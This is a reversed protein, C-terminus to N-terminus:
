PFDADKTLLYLLDDIIKIFPGNEMAIHFRQYIHQFYGETILKIMTCAAAM